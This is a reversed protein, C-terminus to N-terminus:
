YMKRLTAEGGKFSYALYGARQMKEAIIASQVGVACYILYEGKRPLSGFNDALEHYDRHCAGDLHWTQYEGESRCDILYANKPIKDTFLYDTLMGDVSIEDLKIVKSGSIVADLLSLDVTAEADDAQSRSCATAPKESSLQCFEQTSKTLEFSGIRRSMAIIEDKDMTILPRLVPLSASSDITALNALTQSSVQGIAEGTIIAASKSRYAIRCAARYFFRKLVVQLYRSPVQARLHAALPSFDLVHLRPTAGYSWHDNLHKAVKVVSHEYAAGALNFFVFDVALGRKQCLWAAVASDFGGSLLCLVRGGSALPFGGPGAIRTTYFYTTGKRIHTHIEIEPTSLDVRAHREANLAAGLQMQVDMSSFPHHGSRHARVAFSKGAVCARYLRTGNAVIDALTSPCQAKILSFSKIGFIRTLLNIAEAELADECHLHILGWDEILRIKESTKGSLGKFAAHINAVLRRQFQARVYPSKIIMEGALHIIAHVLIKRQVSMTSSYGV